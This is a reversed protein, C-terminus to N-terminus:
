KLIKKRHFFILNGVNSPYLPHEQLKVLEKNIAVDPIHEYSFCSQYM